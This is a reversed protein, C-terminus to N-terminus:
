REGEDGLSFHIGLASASLTPIDRDQVIISHACTPVRRRRAGQPWEPSQHGTKRHREGEVGRGLGGVGEWYM